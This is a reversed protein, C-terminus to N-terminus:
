DGEGPAGPCWGKQALAWNTGSLGPKMLIYSVHGDVYVVPTWPREYDHGLFPQDDVPKPDPASASVGWWYHIPREGMM